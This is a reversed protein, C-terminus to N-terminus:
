MITFEKQGLCVDGYWIEIRYGGAAYSSKNEEGLGVLRCEGEGVEIAVGDDSWIQLNSTSFIRKLSNAAISYIKMNLTITMPQESLSTYHIRPTLFRMRLRQLTSGFDDIMTNDGASNGLEIKNIVLPYTEQLKELIARQESYITEISDRTVQAKEFEQQMNGQDSLFKRAETLSQEARRRAARENQLQTQATNLQERLKTIEESNGPLVTNQAFGGTASILLCVILFIHRRM